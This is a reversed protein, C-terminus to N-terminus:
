DDCPYEKPSCSLAIPSTLSQAYAPFCASNQADPLHSIPLVISNDGQAFLTINSAGRPNM